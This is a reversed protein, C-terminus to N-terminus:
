FAPIKLDMDLQIEEGNWDIFKVPWNDYRKPIYAKYRAAAYIILSDECNHTILMGSKEYKMQAELVHLDKKLEEASDELM